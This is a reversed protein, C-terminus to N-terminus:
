AWEATLRDGDRGTMRAMGIQGRSAGVIQVPAFGDSHGKGGNEILVQSTAGVLSDLWRSRRAAAAARLRAARAKVVERPLQPM